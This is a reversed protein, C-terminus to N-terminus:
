DIRRLWCAGIFIGAGLQFEPAWRSLTSADIAQGHAFVVIRKLNQYVLPFRVALTRTTDHWTTRPQRSDAEDVFKRDRNTSKGSDGFIDRTLTSHRTTRHCLSKTQRDLSPQLRDNQDSAQAHYRPVPTVSLETGERTSGRPSHGVTGASRATVSALVATGPPIRTGRPGLSHHLTSRSNQTVNRRTPTKTSSRISIWSFRVQAHHTQTPRPRRGPGGRHGVRAAGATTRGQQSHQGGSIDIRAAAPSGAIAGTALALPEFWAAM